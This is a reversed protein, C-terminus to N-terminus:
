ENTPKTLFNKDAIIELDTKHEKGHLELADGYIVVSGAALAAQHFNAGMNYVM